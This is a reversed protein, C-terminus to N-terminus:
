KKPKKRELIKKDLEIGATGRARFIWQINDRTILSTYDTVVLSDVLLDMKSGSKGREIGQEILLPLGRLEEKINRKVTDAILPILRDHLMWDATNLLAEETSLDYRLNKLGVIHNLTDFYPSARLYLKGRFSGRVKMELALEEQVSGYLEVDRIKLQYSEYSFSFKELKQNIFENLSKYSVSALVYLDLDADAQQAYRHKPLPLIKHVPPEEFWAYVKAKLTIMGLINGRVNPNWRSTLGSAHAILGIRPSTKNLLIPKQLDEWIKQVVKRTDLVQNTLSDFRKTLKDQNKTLYSDAIKRLNVNVFIVKLSPEVRWVVTDISTESNIEWRDNFGVNSKLHLDIESVVPKVNQLKIGLAKTKFKFSIRLPIIAGLMGPKWLLRASDTREIELYISDKKNGTAIWDKIFSGKLKTNVLRELDKTKFEIPIRITSVPVELTSDLTTRAPADPKIATKTVLMFVWVGAALLLVVILFLIGKKM